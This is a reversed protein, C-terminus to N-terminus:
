RGDRIIHSSLFISCYSYRVAPSLLPSPLVADSALVKHVAKRKSLNIRFVEEYREKISPTCLLDFVSLGNRNKVQFVSAGKLILCAVLDHNDAYEVAIHLATQGGNNQENVNCGKDVLWSAFMVVDINPVSQNPLMFSSHPSSKTACRAIVHLPTEHFLDTSTAWLTHSLLDMYVVSSWYYDNEPSTSAMSKTTNRQAKSSTRKLVRLWELLTAEEEFRLYVVSGGRYFNLNGSLSRKRLRIGDALKTGLQAEAEIEIILTKEKSVNSPLGSSSMRGIRCDKLSVVKCEVEHQAYPNGSKYYVVYLESVTFWKRSWTRCNYSKEVWGELLTPSKEILSSAPSPVTSVSVSKPASTRYYSTPSGNLGEALLRVIHMSPKLAAYYLTNRRNVDVALIEDGIPNLFQIVDANAGRVASQLLTCYDLWKNRVDMEEPFSECYTQTFALSTSRDSQCQLHLKMLRNHFWFRPISQTFFRQIRVVSLRRAALERYGAKRRWLSAVTTAKQYLKLIEHSLDILHPTEHPRCFLLKINYLASKDAHPYKQLCLGYKLVLFRKRDVQMRFLAQLKCIGGQQERMRKRIRYLRYKQQIKAVFIGLHRILAKNLAIFGSRTMFVQTKGLQYTEPGLFRSLIQLSRLNSMEFSDSRERADLFVCFSTLFEVYTMRIPFLGFEELQDSYQVFEKIGSSLLQRFVLEESFFEPDAQSSGTNLCLVFHLEKVRLNAMVADLRTRYQFSLSSEIRKQQNSMRSKSNLGKPTEVEREAKAYSQLLLSTRREVTTKVELVPAPLCDLTDTSASSHLPSAIRSVSAASASTTDSSLSGLTLTHHAITSRRSHKSKKGTDGNVDLTASREDLSTSTSIAVNFNFPSTNDGLDQQNQSHFRRLIPNSTNELVTLVNDALLCINKEMFGDITYMVEGGSHKIVFNNIGCRVKSYAYRNKSNKPMHSPDNINHLRGLLTAEDPTQGLRDYDELQNLIGSPTKIIVDIIYQNAAEERALLPNVNLQLGEKRCVDLEQRVVDRYYLDLFREAALNSCLQELSNRGELYDFGFADLVGIQYKGNSFPAPHEPAIRSFLKLVWSFVGEYLHKMLSHVNQKVRQSTAVKLDVRVSRRNFEVSQMTIADLMQQYDDEPVGLLRFLDRLDLLPSKLHVAEFETTSEEFQVNGLHLIGALLSFISRIDDASCNMACLSAWVAEFQAVSAEHEHEAKAFYGLIVFDEAAHNVFLEKSLSLNTARLGHLMQYFIHFNRGNKEMSFSATLRSKELLIAQMSVQAIAANAASYDFQTYLMFRSSNPSQAIKANGFAELLQFGAILQRMVFGEDADDKGEYLRQTGGCLSREDHIIVSDAIALFSILQKTTETKGSGREGGVVFCLNTSDDM